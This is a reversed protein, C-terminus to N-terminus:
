YDTLVVPHGFRTLVPFGDSSQLASLGLFPQVADMGNLGDADVGRVMVYYTGAGPARFSAQPVSVQQSAYLRAGKPDGAVRVLYTSAGALPPFSISWSGSERLPESLDPAPLLTKVGLLKGSATVAAGQGRQLRASGATETSLAAAGTLVESQSGQDNAHVRLQTGRVGTISVPTRIEFRGVGTDHPAVQSE